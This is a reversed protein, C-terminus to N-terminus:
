PHMWVKLTQLQEGREELFSGAITEFCTGM